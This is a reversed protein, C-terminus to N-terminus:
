RVWDLKQIEIVPRKISYRRLVPQPYGAMPISDVTQSEAILPVAIETKKKRIEINPTAAGCPYVAM